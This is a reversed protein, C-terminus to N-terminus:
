QKYFVLTQGKNKLKKFLVQINNNTTKVNLLYTIHDKFTLSPKSKFINVIIICIWFLTSSSQM